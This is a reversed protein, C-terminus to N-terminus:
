HSRAEADEQKDQERELVRIRAEHDAVQAATNKADSFGATVTVKLDQVDAKVSNIASYLSSDRNRQDSDTLFHPGFGCIGCVLLLIIKDKWPMYSLQRISDKEAM